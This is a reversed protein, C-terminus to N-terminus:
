IEPQYHCTQTSSLAIHPDLRETKILWLTPELPDTTKPGENAFCSTERLRRGSPFSVPHTQHIASLNKPNSAASPAHRRCGLNSNSSTRRHVLGTHARSMTQRPLERSESTILSVTAQTCSREGPDVLLTGDSNGISNTVIQPETSISQKM